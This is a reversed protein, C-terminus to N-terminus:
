GRRETLPYAPCVAVASSVSMFLGSSATTSIPEATLCSVSVWSEAGHGFHKAGGNRSISLSGFRDLLEADQGLDSQGSNHSGASSTQSPVSNLEKIRLLDESLLPHPAHSVTSNLVLLAAELQRIREAFEALKTRLEFTTDCFTRFYDDHYSSVAIFM